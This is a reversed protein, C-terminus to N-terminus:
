RVMDAAILKGHERGNEIFIKNCDYGAVISGAVYVGPVKSELTKPNHGPIGTQADVDIGVERLFSIDPHYGTLAYVFDCGINETRGKVDVMIGAPNIELVRTNFFATIEHNKIRNEIDPLIWYKVSKGLSDGRHVLVVAVGHRYLDLAAEVASNKGGIIVVRQGFHRGPENYYHSVHPLTEGPVGLLNPHDYFGTSVVVKEAAFFNVESTVENKVEVQFSDAGNSIRNVCLVRSNGRFEIRNSGAVRSYYNVADIRTPHPSSAVFPIGALELLAVTSFFIM